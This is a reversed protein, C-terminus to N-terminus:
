EYKKQTNIKNCFWQALQVCSNFAAILMTEQTITNPKQENLLFIGNSLSLCLHTFNMSFNLNEKKFKSYNDHALISLLVFLWFDPRKYWYITMTWTIKKKKKKLEIM